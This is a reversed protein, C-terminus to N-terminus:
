PFRTCFVNPSNRRLLIEMQMTLAYYGLCGFTVKSDALLRGFIILYLWPPGQSYFLTKAAHNLADYHVAALDFLSANNDYALPLMSDTTDYDMDFDHTV